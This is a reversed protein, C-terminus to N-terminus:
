LDIRKRAIERPYTDDQFLARLQFDVRLLRTAALRWGGAKRV